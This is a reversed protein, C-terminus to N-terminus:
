SSPLRHAWRLIPLSFHRYVLAAFTYALPFTFILRIVLGPISGHLNNGTIIQSLGLFLTHFLYWEYSILGTLIMIPHCLFRYILVPVGYIIPLILFVSLGAAFSCLYRFVVGDVLAIGIFWTHTRISCVAIFGIIGVPVCKSAYRAMLGPFNIHSWAFLAGWGFLIFSLLVDRIFPRTAVSDPNGEVVAWTATSIAMLIFPVLWPVRRSAIFLFPLLTYFSVEAALTWYIPSIMPDPPKFIEVFAMTELGGIIYRPNHFIYISFATLLVISLYLPPIVKAARRIAYGPPLWQPSAACRFFPMSILFGSLVFFLWVGATGNTSITCLIRLLPAKIFVSPITHTCVVLIIAVARLGDLGGLLNRGVPAKAHWADLNLSNSM